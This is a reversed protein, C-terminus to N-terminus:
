LSTASPTSKAACSLGKPVRFPEGSYMDLYLTLSGSGFSIRYLDLITDEVPLSGEREYTIPEGKPGALLNLYAHEMSPGTFPDGEGVRIPNEETYGYTVDVSVPCGDSLPTPEFFEIADLLASFLPLGEQYWRETPANGIMVFFQHASPNSCAVRGTIRDGFLVGSIDATLLPKGALLGASPESASFGEIDAAMNGLLGDLQKELSFGGSAFGGAISILVEQDTSGLVVLGIRYTESYNMVQPYTLGAHEFRIQRTFQFSSIPTRTPKEATASPTPSATVSATPTATPRSTPTEKPTPAPTTVSCSGLLLCLSIALITHNSRLKM